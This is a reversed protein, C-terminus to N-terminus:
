QLEYRLGGGGWSGLEIIRILVPGDVTIPIEASADNNVMARAHVVVETGGELVHQSIDKEEGPEVTTDIQGEEEHLYSVEVTVDLENRLSIRGDKKQGEEKKQPGDSSGCAAWFMLCALVAAWSFHRTIRTIM